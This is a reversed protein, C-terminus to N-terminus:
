LLRGQAPKEPIKESQKRLWREIAAAVHALEAVRMAKGKGIRHWQWVAEVAHRRPM